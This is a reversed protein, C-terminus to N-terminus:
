DLGVERIAAGLHASSTTGILTCAVEARSVSARLADAVSREPQLRIVERALVIIGRSFIADSIAASMTEILSYPLQLLGLGPMVVAAELMAADDCSVGYHRAKGAAKLAM